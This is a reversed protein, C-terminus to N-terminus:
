FNYKMNLTLSEEMRIYGWKGKWRPSSDDLVPHIYLKASMYKNINFTFTNTWDISTYSFDSRWFVVSSWSIQKAIPWNFNLRINPGFGHRSHKGKEIGHSTVLNNRQVYVLNLALPAVQLGGTFKKKKGYKFDYTMGPAISVNMPSFIDAQVKDSNSRFEPVIKTEINVALSYYWLKVAKVGANTNFVLRNDTPRFTRMKDSKSTQFGLRATLSNKWILNKTDDYNLNLSVSATGSYRNEGGWNESYYNQTFGFDFAGSYKWFNPRRTKVKVKDDDSIEPLLEKTVVKEALNSEAHLKDAVDERILGQQKLDDETQEVLWPHSVYLSAMARNIEQLRLLKMDKTRKNGLAMMQKTTAHYLAPETILQYYYPDLIVMGNADGLPTSDRQAVITSLSKMYRKMIALTDMPVDFKKVVEKEEKPEEKNLSDTVAQLSDAHLLINSVQRILSDSSQTGLTVIIPTPPGEVSDPLNTALSDSETQAHLPIMMYLLLFLSWYRKM